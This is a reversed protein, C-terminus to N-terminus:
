DSTAFVSGGMIQQQGAPKVEGDKGVESMRLQNVMNAAGAHHKILPRRSFHFTSKHVFGLDSPKNNAGHFM